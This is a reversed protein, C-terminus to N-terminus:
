VWTVSPASPGATPTGADDSHRSIRNSLRLPRGACRRHAATTRTAVACRIGRMKDRVEVLLEPSNGHRIILGYETEVRRTFDSRESVRDQWVARVATPNLVQGDLLYTESEKVADFRPVGWRTDVSIEGVSLDWGTGV